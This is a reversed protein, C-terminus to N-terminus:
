GVRKHSHLFLAAKTCTRLKYIVATKQSLLERLAALAGDGLTRVLISDIIEVAQPTDGIAALALAYAYAFQTGSRASHLTVAFDM